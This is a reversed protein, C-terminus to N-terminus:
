VADAAGASSACAALSLLAAVLAQGISGALGPLSTQGDGTLGRRGRCRWGGAPAALAPLPAALAQRTNRALGPLNM